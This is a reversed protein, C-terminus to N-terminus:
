FRIYSKMEKELFSLEEQLKNQEYILSYLDMSQVKETRKVYRTINLNYDNAEIESLCAVHSFNDLGQREHFVDSIKKINEDTIYNRGKSNEFLMTSDKFLVNSDVKNKRFILIVTAINTSAFLREPLGIVADLLNKKILNQRILAENAGRFLVGHPVVVAMRGTHDKMSAIMHLIFAYDAKSQPPMGLAFRGFRDRSAEEYGWNSVSFPPNSVVVDFKELEGKHDRFQPNIFVDGWKIECEYVGHLFMNIYSINWSSKLIEQGYVKYDQLKNGNPIKQITSLLLSGSGCAPDYISDGELPLVLESLLASVSYPTYFDSGRANTEFAIKEFLVKCILEISPTGNDYNNFQFAESNLAHLLDSLLVDRDKRSGLRDSTYDIDNFISGDCKYFSHFIVDDYFHLARNIREGISGERIDSYISYFSMDEPVNSLVEKIRSHEYAVGDRKMKYNLDSIYKLFILPLIYYFSSTTDLRGRFVNLVEGVIEKIEKENVKIM